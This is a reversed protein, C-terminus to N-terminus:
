DGAVFPIGPHLARAQDIMGPSLDVGLAEAGHDRLYRAVQGPGCGLDCIPGLAGVRQLLEDLFARDAPKSELEHALRRAYEDAVRDYSAELDVPEMRLSLVEM